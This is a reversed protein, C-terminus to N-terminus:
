IDGVTSNWGEEVGVERVDVKGDGEVVVACNKGVLKWQGRDFTSPESAVIVHRGHEEARKWARPNGGEERDATGPYKRNLTVGAETSYYLSPPQETAHNLVRFAVLRQGDTTAINLDNARAGARGLVDQQLRVVTEVTKRLADFMAATSYTEREWAPAPAGNTLYTIYLAALHESDTTGAIHAFAAASLLAALPRRIALFDAVKFLFCNFLWFCKYFLIFYSFM